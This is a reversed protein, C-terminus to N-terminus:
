TALPPSDPSAQPRSYAREFLVLIGERTTMHRGLRFFVGPMRSGSAIASEDLIRAAAVVVGFRNASPCDSLFGDPVLMVM